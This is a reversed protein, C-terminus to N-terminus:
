RAAGEWNSFLEVVTWPSSSKGTAELRVRSDDGPDPAVCFAIQDSLTYTWHKGGDSSVYVGTSTGAYYTNPDLSLASCDFIRPPYIGDSISALKRGRGNNELSRVKRNGRITYQPKGAFTESRIRKQVFGRGATWTRSTSPNLLVASKRARTCISEGNSPVSALAGVFTNQM